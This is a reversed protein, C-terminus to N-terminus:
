WIPSRSTRPSPRPSSCAPTRVIRPSSACRTASRTRPVKAHRVPRGDILIDGYVLPAAGFLLEMLESRGSGVMGAIGLVEGRHLKFSIDRVGNGTVNRVELAVEGRATRERKYFTSPDRGVM